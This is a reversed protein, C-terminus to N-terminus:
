IEKRQDADPRGAGGNMECPSESMEGPSERVMGTCAGGSVNVDKLMGSAEMTWLLLQDQLFGPLIREDLLKNAQYLCRELRGDARARTGPLPIRDRGTEAM